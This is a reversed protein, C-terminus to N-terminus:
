HYRTIKMEHFLYAYLLGSITGSGRIKGSKIEQRIRKTSIVSVKIKEYDDLKQNSAKTLQRAIFVFNKQGTRGPWTYFWGMFKLKNCKYGTEELLERRATESAKENENIFGGPLELLSDGAAYRYSEVMLLSGDEFIPLVIAADNVDIRNFMASKTKRDGIWDEYIAMWESKYIRNSTNVKYEPM